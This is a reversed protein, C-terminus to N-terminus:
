PSSANPPLRHPRVFKYKGVHVELRGAHVAFWVTLPLITVCRLEGFEKLPYRSEGLEDALWRMGALIARAAVLAERQLGHSAAQVIADRLQDLIAPAASVDFPASPM